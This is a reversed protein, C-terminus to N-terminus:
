TLGMRKEVEPPFFIQCGSQAMLSHAECLNAGCLNVVGYGGCKKIWRGGSSDEERVEAIADCKKSM